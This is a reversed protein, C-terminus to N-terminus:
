PHPLFLSQALSVLRNRLSPSPTHPFHPINRIFKPALPLSSIIKKLLTCTYQSFQIFKRSNPPSHSTTYNPKPTITDNSRMTAVSRHRQYLWLLMQSILLSVGSTRYCNWSCELRAFLVFPSYGSRPSSARLDPFHLTFWQV